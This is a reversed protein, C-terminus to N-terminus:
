FIRRIGQHGQDGPPGDIAKGVPGKDGAEGVDGTILFLVNIELKTVESFFGFVLQIRKHQM